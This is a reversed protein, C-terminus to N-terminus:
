LEDVAAVGVVVSSKKKEDCRLVVLPFHDSLMRTEKTNDTWAVYRDKESSLAYDLRMRAAHMSDDTLDTPVTPGSTGLGADHLESLLMRIPVYDINLDEDLFKKSLRTDSLFISRLSAHDGADLPSLTNLDGLVLLPAMEQQWTELIKSSEWRRVTSKHPSLHTVLVSVRLSKVYVYIHGHHWPEETEKSVLDFPHRSVVGLHYGHRTYLFFTHPMGVSEGFKQLKRESFHNLESLGLFDLRQSQVYNTIRQLRSSGSSEGGHFINFFM